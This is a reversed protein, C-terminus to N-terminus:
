RKTASPADPAATEDLAATGDEEDAPDIHCDGTGPECWGGAPTTVIRLREKPESM